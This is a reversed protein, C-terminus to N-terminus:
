DSKLGLGGSKVSDGAKTEKRRIPGVRKGPRSHIEVYVATWDESAAKDIAAALEAPHASAASEADRGVRCDFAWHGADEPLTKRRERKLYRRVDNKIAAIVRAPAHKPDTLPFTKKM